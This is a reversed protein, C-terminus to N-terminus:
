YNLFSNIAFFIAENAVGVRLSVGPKPKHFAFFTDAPLPGVIKIGQTKAQRIAPLIYEIDEAGM